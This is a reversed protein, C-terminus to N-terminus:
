KGMLEKYTRLHRLAALQDGADEYLKAINFHADACEPDVAIAQAYATFADQERGDDELAVGLNYAATPNDPTTSLVIRYHEIAEGIEGVAHVLRGLNIRAHAHSPDLALARRYAHRAEVPRSAELTCGRDFWAEAQVDDLLPLDDDIPGADELPSVPTPEHTASFNFVFQGNVPYWRAHGDDAIIESDIATLQIESLPHDTPHQRRLERLTRYVFRRNITTTRLATTSRLFTLDQFSFRFHNQPTRAPSLFDERAFRRVQAM